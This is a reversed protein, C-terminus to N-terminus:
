VQFCKAISKSPHHNDDHVFNKFAQILVEQQSMIATCLSIILVNGLIYCYMSGLTITVEITYFIVYYQNFTHTSVCFNLNLVNQLRVNSGESTTLINIVIPILFWQIVNAFSLYAYWNTFIRSKDRDSYLINKYVVCHKSVFLDFRTVNLIASIKNANYMYAVVKLCGLQANLIAFFYIFYDIKIGIDDDVFFLGVIAYFLLCQVIGVLLIYYIQHVKLGFVMRENPVFIQYFHFQKLLKLNINVEDNQLTNM